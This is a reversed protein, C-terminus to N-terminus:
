QDYASLKTLHPLWETGCHSIPIAGTHTYTIPVFLNPRAPRQLCAAYRGNTEGAELFFEELLTVGATRSARSNRGQRSGRHLQAGGGKWRAGLGGVAKPFSWTLIGKVVVSPRLRLQHLLRRSVSHGTCSLSMSCPLSEIEPWTRTWESVSPSRLRELGNLGREPM